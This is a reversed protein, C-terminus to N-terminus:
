ANTEVSGVLSDYKAGNKIIDKGTRASEGLIKFNLSQLWLDLLLLCDDSHWSNGFTYTSQDSFKGCNFKSWCVTSLYFSGINQQNPTAEV